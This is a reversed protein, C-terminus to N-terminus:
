WHPVETIRGCCREPCKIRRIRYYPVAQAKSELRYWPTVLTSVFYTQLQGIAQVTDGDRYVSVGPPPHDM